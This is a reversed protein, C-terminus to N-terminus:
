ESPTPETQANEALMREVEEKTIEEGAPLPMIGNVFEIAADTNTALEMFLESFAETQSFERAMEESKIFRRGDESKQGYSKLLFQKFISVLQDPNRSNAIDSLLTSMGGETNLEMETLELKNLHFYYDEVREVGNYDVYKVTKKIM